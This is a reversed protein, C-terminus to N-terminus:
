REGVGRWLVGGRGSPRFCGFTEYGLASFPGFRGFVDFLRLAPPNKTQAKKFIQPDLTRSKQGGPAARAGPYSVKPGRSGGPAGPYSVKPRGSGFVAGPYSVTPRGSPASVM